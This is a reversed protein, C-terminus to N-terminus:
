ESDLNRKNVGKISKPTLFPPQFEREGETPRGHLMLPYVFGLFYHGDFLKRTTRAFPIWALHFLLLHNNTHLIMGRASTQYSTYRPLLITNLTCIWGDM